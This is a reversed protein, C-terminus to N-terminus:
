FNYRAPLHATLLNFFHLVSIPIARLWDTKDFRLNHGPIRVGSPKILTLAAM